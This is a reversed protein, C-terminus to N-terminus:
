KRVKMVVALPVSMSADMQSTLYSDSQLNEKSFYYEIQRRVADVLQTGVLVEGGTPSTPSSPSSSAAAVPSPPTQSPLPLPALTLLTYPTPFLPDDRRCDGQRLVPFRSVVQNYSPEWDVDSCVVV